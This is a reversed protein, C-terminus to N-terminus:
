RRGTPVKMVALANTAALRRADVAGACVAVGVVAGTALEQLPIENM